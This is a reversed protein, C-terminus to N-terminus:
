AILEPFDRAFERKAWAHVDGYAEFLNGPCETRTVGVFKHATVSRYSLQYKCLLYSVLTKLALAQSDTLLENESVVEIGISKKNGGRCHWAVKEEPVMQYIDGNKALVFHASKQSNPNQFWSLTGELSKSATHHIIVQSVKSRRLGYNKSAKFIVNPKASMNM